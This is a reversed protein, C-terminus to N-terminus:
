KILVMRRVESHEGARMQYFYVGSSVARNNDDLGNWEISHRGAQFHENVLSRVRQGRINFIDISVNGDVANEFAIMTTPNFPNPFNPMLQTQMIPALEDDESVTYEFDYVNIGSSSVIVIKEADLFTHVNNISYPFNLNGLHHTSHGRIDHLRVESLHNNFLASVGGFQYAGQQPNTPTNLMYLYSMSALDEGVSYFNQNFIPGGSRVIGDALFAMMQRNFSKPITSIINLPNYRDRFEIDRDTEIMFYEPHNYGQNHGMYGSFKGLEILNENEIIFVYNTYGMPTWFIDINHTVIVFNEIIEIDNARFDIPFRGIMTQAELDYIEIFTENISIDNAVAYLINKDITFNQFRAPTNTEITKLYSADLMSYINIYQRDPSREIFYEDKRSFDNRSNGFRGLPYFNDSINYVFVGSSGNVYLKDNFVDMSHFAPGLSEGTFINRRNELDPLSYLFVGGSDTDPFYVLLKDDFLLVDFVSAGSSTPNFAITIINYFDNIDYVGFENGIGMVFLVGNEVKMYIPHFFDGNLYFDGVIEGYPNGTSATDFDYVRIFTGIDDQWLSIFYSDMTTYIGFVAPLRAVWTMSITDFQHIRYDLDWVMLYHQMIMPRLITSTFQGSSPMPESYIQTMPQTSLDFIIMQANVDSRHFVYLRENFIRSIALILSMQHVFIRELSGDPLIEYEEISSQTTVFLRNEFRNLPRTYSGYNISHSFTVDTIKDINKALLSISGLLLVFTLFKKM